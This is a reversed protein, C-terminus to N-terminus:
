ESAWEVAWERVMKRRRGRTEKITAKILDKSAQVLSKPVEMALKKSVKLCETLSPAVEM